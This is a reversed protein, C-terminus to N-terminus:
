FGPCHRFYAMKIILEDIMKAKGIGIEKRFPNSGFSGGSNVDMYVTRQVTDEKFSVAIHAGIASRNSKTGELTISIWNNNGQGPNIYLSNYYADGVFQGVWKLSFIRIEMMTWTLLRWEM